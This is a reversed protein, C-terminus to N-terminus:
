SSGESFPTLDTVQWTGNPGRALGMTLEAEGGPTDESESRIHATGVEGNQETDLLTLKTAAGSTHEAFYQPCGTRLEGEEPEVAGGPGLQREEKYSESLLTCVAKFDRANYADVYKQAARGAETDKGNDDGGGCGAFAAACIVALMAVGIGM